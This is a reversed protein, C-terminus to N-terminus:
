DREKIKEKIKVRHHKGGYKEVIVKHYTWPDARDLDLTVSEGLVISPPPKPASRWAGGEFWFYVRTEPVFYVEVEPYYVYHYTVTTAPHEEIVVRGGGEARASPVAIAFAIAGTLTLAWPWLKQLRKM